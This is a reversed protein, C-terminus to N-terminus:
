SEQQSLARAREVSAEIMDQIAQALGLEEAKQLGAFTTGGKSTVNQRLAALNEKSSLALNASGVCTKLALEKAITEPLGLAVAEAIMAELIYFIFGPGSGSLGTIIDLWQEKELWYYSGIASLITQTIELESASLKNPSFIGTVGQNILAPTNPMARIIQTHHGSDELWHYIAKTSIGAAISMLLPKKALILPRLETVVTKLVAPKVAFILVNVQNALKANNLTTQISYHTRLFDLSEPTPNSVWLQNAPFGSQILGAIMAKAMNGAGIFGIQTSTKSM